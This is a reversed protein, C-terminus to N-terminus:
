DPYDVMSGYQKVIDKLKGNKKMRQLHADFIEHLVVNDKNFLFGYKQEIVNEELARATLQDKPNSAVYYGLMPRDYIVADCAGCKLLSVVEDFTEYSRVNVSNLESVAYQAGTSKRKVCIKKGSLFEKDHSYLDSHVGLDFMYGLSSKAYSTTANYRARREENLTIGSAIMDVQHSELADFLKPFPMVVYKLNLGADSAVAEIVDIDLGSVDEAIVVTNIESTDRVSQYEDSTWYVFPPVTADIGVTVDRMGFSNFSCLASFSAALIYKACNNM